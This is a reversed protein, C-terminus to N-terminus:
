RRLRVRLVRVRVGRVARGRQVRVTVVGVQRRVVLVLLLLLLAEGRGDNRVVSSTSVCLPGSISVALYVQCRFDTANKSTVAAAGCANQTQALSCSRPLSPTKRPSSTYKYRGLLRDRGCFPSSSIHLRILRETATQRPPTHFQIGHYMPISVTHFFATKTFLLSPSLINANKTHIKLRWATAKWGGEQQRFPFAATPHLQLEERWGLPIRHHNHLHAGM